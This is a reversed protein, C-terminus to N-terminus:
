RSTPASPFAPADVRATFSALPSADHVIGTVTPDNTVGDTGSRGTDHALAATIVPPSTDQATSTVTIDTRSSNGALDTAAVRFATPGRPLAVAASSFPGPADGLGLSIPPPLATGRHLLVGL